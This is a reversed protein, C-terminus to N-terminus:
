STAPSATRMWSATPSVCRPISAADLAVYVRGCRGVIRSAQVPESAIDGRLLHAPHGDTSPWRAWPPETDRSRGWGRASETRTCRHDLSRRPRAPRPTRGPSRGHHHPENARATSISPRRGSRQPPAREAFLRVGEPQPLGGILQRGRRVMEHGRELPERGILPDRHHHVIVCVARGLFDGFREVDTHRRDMDVETPPSSPHTLEHLLRIALFVSRRGKSPM